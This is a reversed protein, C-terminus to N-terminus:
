FGNCRRSRQNSTLPGGRLKLRAERVQSIVVLPDLWTETKLETECVRPLESGLKLRAEERCQSIVVLPDLWTAM